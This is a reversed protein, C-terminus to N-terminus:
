EGDELEQLMLDKGDAWAKHALSCTTENETVGSGFTMPGLVALVQAAVWSLAGTEICQDLEQPSGHGSCDCRCTRKTRVDVIM